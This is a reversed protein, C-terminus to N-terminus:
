SLLVNWTKAVIDQITDALKVPLGGKKAVDVFVRVLELSYTLDSRNPCSTGRM